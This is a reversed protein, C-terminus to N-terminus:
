RAWVEPCAGTACGGGQDIEGLLMTGSAAPSESEQRLYALALYTGAGLLAYAFVSGLTWWFGRKYERKPRLKDAPM